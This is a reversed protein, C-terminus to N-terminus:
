AREAIATENKYEHMRHRPRNREVHQGAEAAHRRGRAHDSAIVIQSPQTENAQNQNRRRKRANQGAELDAPGKGPTRQDRSFEYEADRRTLAPKAPVDELALVLEINGFHKGAEQGDDENSERDLVPHKAQDFGPGNLAPAHLRLPARAFGSFGSTAGARTRCPARPRAQQGPTASASANM